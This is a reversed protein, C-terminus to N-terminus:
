ESRLSDTPNALSARIAQVSVTALAIFLALAGAALFIWWSIQVRYAFDQLWRNMAWWAVPFAVLASIIVLRAFDTSLMRVINGASAGLVKRIGIEKTRQEAAYTVLGFLGLSAIVIALVAFVIFLQGTRQETHYTTNFDQDMFSYLFPQSPVMAKWYHQAADVVGAAHATNLRFAMSGNNQKLMLALPTVQERLSNFNFNKVVGIVHYAITENKTLYFDKVRYLNKGIPDKFSLMRAAAENLIVGSSDTLLQKSFNRGNAMQMGLTPIYDEDVNWIQLSLASKQNPVADEFLPSDSRWGSTPLFGTKTASKVGPVKLMENKFADAQTNLPYTNKIILINDRQFGIDRSRIYHLQNYIVITGIILVISIWFQFVVLGSRLWGSKFGAALKGKLVDIPKFASLYFAPYSGALLGVVGVLLLMAALIRPNFFLSASIEKGALQNFFPLMLVAICVALFLSLFTMLLSETLFQAVLWSRMSGLVKRVGVEKARISSRATSLNMFNVCAILLIFLAIVSFIYVFEISGNAGLESTKNSHLHISTLPTLTFLWDRETKEAGAKAASLDNLEPEVYKIVLASLKAEFAKPDTDKKLVVYTHMNNSTWGNIEWAPIAGNLSVFFDFNFHSQRPIDKMVATIKLNDTDNIFLSRGVVDTSNFYKKATTETIVVSHPNVLATKPDGAMLPLTFVDFLSSDAYIVKEEPVNQSGKRVLFGGYDRLRTQQEVEPFDSKMGAGLPAPSASQIFHGGGFKIDTDVRFIRQAKANYQDYHLEDSVYLFILLCTALGISLGTINIATFGKNKSLNRWATKFYNRLM